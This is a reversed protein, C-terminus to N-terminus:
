RRPLSVDLTRLGGFLGLEVDIEKIRNPGAKFETLEEPESWPKKPPPTGFARAKAEEDGPHANALSLADIHPMGPIRPGGEPPAAKPPPNSLEAEPIGLLETYVEVPIHPLDLSALDLKGTRSCVACFLPRPYTSCPYLFALPSPSTTCCSPPM